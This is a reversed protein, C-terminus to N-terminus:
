RFTVSVSPNDKLGQYIVRITQGAQPPRPKTFSGLSLLDGAQLAHGSKALDQIIWLVANLPQGLINSGKGQDLEHNNEDVLRISMTALQAASIDKVALPEGMVGLRAGVNIYTITPGTLQKPEAVLLDPLEIFPILTDIHELVQEPTTAQNIEADKVQVLLDAEVVPRIGFTAPVQAGDKLLMSKLLIGLVPQEYHFQQQVAPNTLGVKYGVVQTHQQQSLLEVWKDRGCQADALGLNPLNNIPQQHTYADVLQTMEANTPCDAQVPHTLLLTFASTIFYLRPMFM